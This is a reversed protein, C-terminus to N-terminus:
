VLVQPLENLWVGLEELSPMDMDMGTIDFATDMDTANSRMNVPMGPLSDGSSGNGDHAMGVGAMDPVLADVNASPLEGESENQGPRGYGTPMAGAGAHRVAPPLPKDPAQCPPDTRLPQLADPGSHPDSDFHPDPDSHPHGPPDEGQRCPGPLPASSNGHHGAGGGPPRPGAPSICAMTRMRKPPPAAAQPLGSPKRKADSISPALLPVQLPVNSPVYLAPAPIAPDCAPTPRMIVGKGHGCQLVPGRVTKPSPQPVRCASCDHGGSVIGKISSSHVGAGGKGHVEDSGKGDGGGKRGDQGDGGPQGAHRDKVYRAYRRSYMVLIEDETANFVCRLDDEGELEKNASMWDAFDGLVQENVALGGKDVHGHDSVGTSGVAVTKSEAKPARMIDDIPKRSAVAVKMVAEKWGGEASIKKNRVDDSLCLKIDVKTFDACKRKKLKKVKNKGSKGSKSKKPTKEAYKKENWAKWKGFNITVRYQYDVDATLVVERVRGVGDEWEVERKEKREGIQVEKMQEKWPDANTKVILIDAVIERPDDKM